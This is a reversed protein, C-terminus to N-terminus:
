VILGSSLAIDYWQMHLTLVIHFVFKIIYKYYELKRFYRMWRCKYRTYIKLFLVCPGIKLDSPNHARFSKSIEKQLNRKFIFFIEKLNLFLFHFCFLTEGCGVGWFFQQFTKFTWKIPSKPYPYFVSCVNLFKTHNAIKTLKNLDSNHFM